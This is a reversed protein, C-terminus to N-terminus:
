NRWLQIKPGRIDLIQDLELVVTSWLISKPGGELFFPNLSMTGFPPLPNLGFGLIQRMHFRSMLSPTLDFVRQGM